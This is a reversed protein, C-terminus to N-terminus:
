PKNMNIYDTRYAYLRANLMNFAANVMKAPNTHLMFIFPRLAVSIIHISQISNISVAM